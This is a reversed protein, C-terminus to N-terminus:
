KVTCTGQIYVEKFSKAMLAYAAQCSQLTRYEQTLTEINDASSNGSHTILLITLLFTNM